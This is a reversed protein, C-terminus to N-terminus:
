AALAFWGDRVVMIEGRAVARELQAALTAPSEVRGISEAFLELRWADWIMASHHRDVDVDVVRGDRAVFRAGAGHVDYRHGTTLEGSKALEGGRVRALLRALGGQSRDATMGEPELTLALERIAATFLELTCRDAPTTEVDSM